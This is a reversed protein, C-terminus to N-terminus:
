SFEWSLCPLSAAFAECLLHCQVESSKPCQLLVKFSKTLCPPTQSPAKWNLSMCYASTYLRWLGDDPLPSPRPQSRHLYTIPIQFSWNPGTRGSTWASAVSNSIIFGQCNSNHFWLSLRKIAQFVSCLPFGSVSQIGSELFPAPTSPRPYAM